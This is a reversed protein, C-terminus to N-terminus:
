LRNGIQFVRELRPQEVSASVANLCGDVTFHEEVSAHCGEVLQLLGDAVDFEQRIRGLPLQPDATGLCDRCCDQWRDNRPEELLIGAHSHM